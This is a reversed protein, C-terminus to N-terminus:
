AAGHKALVKESLYALQDLYDTDDVSVGSAEIASELEANMEALEQTTFGETNDQNFKNM